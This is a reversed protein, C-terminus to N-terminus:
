RHSSNGFMEDGIAPSRRLNVYKCIEYIFKGLRQNVYVTERITIDDKEMWRQKLDKHRTVTM